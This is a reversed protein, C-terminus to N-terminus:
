CPEFTLSYAFSSHNSAQRVASVIVPDTSMMFTLRIPGKAIIQFKPTGVLTIYHVKRDLTIGSQTGDAIWNYDVNLDVTVVPNGSADLEELTPYVSALLGAATTFNYSTLDSFGIAFLILVRNLSLPTPPTLPSAPPCTRV